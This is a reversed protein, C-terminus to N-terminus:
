KVNVESAHQQYQNDVSTRYRGRCKIPSGQTDSQHAAQLQVVTHTTCTNNYVVGVKFKYKVLNM